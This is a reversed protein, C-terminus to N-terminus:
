VIGKLTQLVFGPQFQKSITGEGSSFGERLGKDWHSVISDLTPVRFSVGEFVYHSSVERCPIFGLGTTLMQNKAHWDPRCMGVSSIQVFVKSRRPLSNVIHDINLLSGNSSQCKRQLESKNYDKLYNTIVEENKIFGLKESKVNVNWAQGLVRGSLALVIAVIACSRMQVERKKRTNLVENPRNWFYRLHARPTEIQFWIAAFKM